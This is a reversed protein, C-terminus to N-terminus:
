FGNELTFFFFFPPFPTSHFRLARAVRWDFLTAIIIRSSMGKGPSFLTDSDAFCFKDALSKARHTGYRNSRSYTPSIGSDRKAPQRSAQLQRSVNVLENAIKIRETEQSEQSASSCLPSSFLGPYHYVFSQLLPRQNGDFLTATIITSSMGNGTLYLPLSKELPCEREQRSYLTVTQLASNIQWCNSYHTTGYRNSGLILPLFTLIGNLQNGRRKCNDQFISLNM